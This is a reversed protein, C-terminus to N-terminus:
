TGSKAKLTRQGWEGRSARRSFTGTAVDGTASRGDEPLFAAYMAKCAGATLTRHRPVNDFFGAEFAEWKDWTHYVRGPTGTDSEANM